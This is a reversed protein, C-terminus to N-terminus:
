AGGGKGTGALAAAAQLVGCRCANDEPNCVDCHPRHVMRGDRTYANRLLNRLGIVEGELETVREREALYAAALIGIESTWIAVSAGDGAKVIREAVEKADM